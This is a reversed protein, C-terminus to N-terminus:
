LFSMPEKPTSAPAPMAPAPQEDKEEPGGKMAGNLYSMM